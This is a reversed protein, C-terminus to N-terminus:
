AGGVQALLPIEEPANIPALMMNPRIRDPSDDIVMDPKALAAVVDLKYRKAFETAYAAGAGSWLVVHRKHCIRRLAEINEEIPEGWRNAGDHTLTGDIDVYIWRSM